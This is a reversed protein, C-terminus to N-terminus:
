KLFVVYNGDYKQVEGGKIRYTVSMFIIPDKSKLQKIQKLQDPSFQNGKSKKVQGLISTSFGVVEYPVNLIGDAGYGMELTTNANLNKRQLKDSPLQQENEVLYLDAKPLKKVRFTQEGMKQLTGGLDGQVIVKVEKADNHPVLIWEKGSKKATAGIVNVKIQNDTMGPCTILYRNDYDKYIVNLDLNMVSTSPQGVEFASEFEAEALRRGKKYKVVGSFPHMGISSAPARFIGDEGLQVGEVFYQPKDTTDVAALIIQAEYQGGQLVYSSKPIVYARIYNAKYDQGGIRNLFTILTKGEYSPYREPVQDPDGYL